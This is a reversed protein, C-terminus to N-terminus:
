LGYEMPLKLQLIPTILSLFTVIINKSKHRFHEVLQGTRCPHMIFYPRGFLPHEQQTIVSSFEDEKIHIFSLRRIDELKLLVGSSNWINFSFSPVGYSLNFFIVCEM